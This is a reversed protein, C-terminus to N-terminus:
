VQGAKVVAVITFAKSGQVGLSVWKSVSSASRGSSIIIISKTDYLAVPSIRKEGMYLLLFLAVTSLINSGRGGGEM